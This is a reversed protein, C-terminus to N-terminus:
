GPFPGHGCGEPAPGGEPRNRNPNKRPGKRNRQARTKPSEDKPATSGTGTDVKDYTKPEEPPTLNKSLATEREAIWKVIHPPLNKGNFAADFAELAHAPCAGVGIIANDLDSLSGIIALWSGDGLKMMKPVHRSHPTNQERMMAEQEALVATHRAYLESLQAELHKQPDLSFRRDDSIISDLRNCLTILSNELAMRAGGDKEGGESEPLDKMHLFYTTLTAFAGLISTMQSQTTQEQSPISPTPKM